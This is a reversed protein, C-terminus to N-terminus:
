GRGRAQALQGIQRQAHASNGQRIEPLCLTRPWAASKESSRISPGAPELIGLEEGGNSLHLSQAREPGRIRRFKALELPFIVIQCSFIDGGPSIQRELCPGTFSAGHGPPSM